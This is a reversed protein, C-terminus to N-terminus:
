AHGNGSSLWAKEPIAEEVDAKVVPKKRSKLAASWTKGKFLELVKELSFAVVYTAVSFVIILIIFQENSADDMFTGHSISYLATIFGPPLYAITIYTLTRINNGQQITTQNDALATQTDVVNTITSIGDRLGTVQKIKLQTKDHVDMLMGYRKKFEDVVGNYEQILDAHQNTADQKITHEMAEHARDIQSLSSSLKDNFVRLAEWGWLMKKLKNIAETTGWWDELGELLTRDGIEMIDDLRALLKGYEVALKECLHGLLLLFALCRASAQQHIFKELIRPLVRSVVPAVAASDTVGSWASCVWLHGAADGTFVLSSSQEQVTHMMQSLESSSSSSGLQAINEPPFDGHQRHSERFADARHEECTRITWHSITISTTWTSKERSDTFRSTAGFHDDIMDLADPHWM